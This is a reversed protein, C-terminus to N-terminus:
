KNELMGSRFWDSEQKRRKELGPLIKGGAMRFELIKDAIVENSRTGNDTLGYLGNGSGSSGLGLNYVFSTLADIQCDNWSYGNNNGFNVVASRRRAVDANLRRLAEPEDIVENPNNAKTGYGISYQKYDLFAKPSFREHTKIFDTLNIACSSVFDESTYPSAYQEQEGDTSAYGSTGSSHNGGTYGSSSGATFSVIKQAPESLTVSKASQADSPQEASGPALKVIDDILVESSNIHVSSGGGIKIIDGKINTDNSQISLTETKLDFNSGGQIRVSKAGKLSVDEVNSEITVKASRAQIEDSGNLNLQGGVSLEYNGHVIQKCDGDIEELKNGSVKIIADGDVNVVCKGGVYLHYNAENIDYKDNASKDTKTGASDIQVYSGSQHYIMIREAGPTDDIEISSGGATEALVRNFPYEASYATSPEEWSQGDASKIEKVRTSEQAMVYTNEINEGRVLPSINPQGSDQPRSGYSLRDYNERMPSGWGTESPNIGDINQSPIVGLLMPRQADRGDLFFGFVWANLPPVPTNYDYNGSIPMAWPLDSTPIQNATGHFGFARVQVRGELREDVNNEVVGIFPMIKETLNFM